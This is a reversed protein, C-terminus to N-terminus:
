YAIYKKKSVVYPTGPYPVIVVVPEEELTPHHDLNPLWSSDIFTTKNLTINYQVFITIIATQQIPTLWKSTDQIQINTTEAPVRDFSWIYSSM